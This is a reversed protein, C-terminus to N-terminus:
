DHITRETEIAEMVKREILNASNDKKDKTFGPILSKTDEDLFEYSLNICSEKYLTSYITLAAVYGYLGNPHYDNYNHLQEYLYGNELLLNHAYGSPIYNLNPVDKLEYM